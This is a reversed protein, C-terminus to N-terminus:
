DRFIVRRHTSVYDWGFALCLGGVAGLVFLIALARVKRPRVPKDSVVTHGVRQVPALLSLKSQRADIQLEYEARKAPIEVEGELELEGIKREVERLAAAVDTEQKYESRHREIVALEAEYTLSDSLALNRALARQLGLRAEAVAARDASSGAGADLKALEQEMAPRSAKLAEVRTACFERKRDFAQMDLELDRRRYAVVASEARAAELRLALSAEQRDVALLNNRIEQIQLVLGDRTLKVQSSVTDAEAYASFLALSTDLLAAAGEPSTDTTWLTIVEGGALNTLGQAIFETRIIPGADRKLGLREVLDHRYMEKDFWRTIDKMQWQRVPGGSPDYATIGPRITAVAEWRRTGFVGYALGV